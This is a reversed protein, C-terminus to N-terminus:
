ATYNSFSTCTVGAQMVSVSLCYVNIKKDISQFVLASKKFMCMHRNMTESLACDFWAVIYMKYM